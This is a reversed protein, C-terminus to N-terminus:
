LIVSPPQVESGFRQLGFRQVEKERRNKLAISGVFWLNENRNGELAKGLERM